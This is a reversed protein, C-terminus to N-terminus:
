NEAGAGLLERAGAALLKQALAEGLAQPSATQGELRDKVVKRGDLSAVMGWLNLRGGQVEGLAAIPQNCGGGLADLFAREAAIAQRSPPHDLPSLRQAMEEDGERIEVALAGQGVAPLCINPPLYETIRDQWGLRLLGAAAVVAAEVVGQAVKRLRTDLNGRLDVIELDPRLARLQCSRRPSSTGVMAGPPLLSFPQGGRSILADRPDLRQTICALRLGPTTQTPLDKYSHVALDVEGQLLADQIEKVFVGKGGIQPLPTQDEQDGRTKIRKVVLELSPYLRRLQNLLEQTQALALLSGRTGLVVTRSM